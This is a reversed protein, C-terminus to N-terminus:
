DEDREGYNSSASPQVRTREYFKLAEPKFYVSEIGVPGHRQKAIILEDERTPQDYQNTPRYTLLIVHADNELSGSEKLSFRNPRRNADGDRPRSLQSVALVPVGTTKALVRLANSVKTIREREDRAPCSILQVYDVCILRIKHQRIAIRALSCLKQVTLSGADNVWLPWSSIEETARRIREKDDRGIHAPNRIKWFPVSSEQAWLRHVLEQRSMELSFILIPIGEKCNAATIQVALSTKGDGTRGGVIWLEEPRIGTTNGDLCSIGTTLGILTQGRSALADWEPYDNPGAIRETPTDASGAQIQLVNDHLLDLCEQARAGSDAAHAMTAQCASILKRRDSADRVRKVYAALSKRDYVVGGVLDALYAEGVTSLQGRDRLKGALTIIDIAEGAEGMEVMASYIMRNSQPFFDEPTLGHQAAVDYAEANTELIAGLISREEIECTPLKIETNV